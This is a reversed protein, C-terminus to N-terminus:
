THCGACTPALGAVLEIMEADRCAAAHQGHRSFRIDTRERVINEYSFRHAVANPAFRIGFESELGAALRPLHASGRQGRRRRYLAPRAIGGAVKKSRLSFGGNGVSMGDTFSRWRAGIYHSRRFSPKAMPFRDRKLRGMARDARLASHILAPLEKIWSVQYAALSKMEDIRITRFSVQVPESSILMADAFDCQAVSLRLARASLAVNALDVTCVTVDHLDPKM